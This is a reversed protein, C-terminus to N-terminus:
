LWLRFVASFEMGFASYKRKLHILIQPQIQSPLATSAFGIGSMTKM